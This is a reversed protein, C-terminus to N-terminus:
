APRSPGGGRQLLRLGAGGGIGACRAAAAAVGRDHAAVHDGGPRAPRAGLGKQHPFVGRGLARAWTDLQKGLTM